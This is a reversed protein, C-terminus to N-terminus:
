VILSFLAKKQLLSCLIKLRLCVKNLFAETSASFHRGAVDTRTNVHEEWQDTYPYLIGNYNTHM